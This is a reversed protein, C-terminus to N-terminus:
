YMGQVDYKDKGCCHKALEKYLWWLLISTGLTSIKLIIISYHVLKSHEDKESFFADNTCKYDFTVIICVDHFVSVRLLFYYKFIYTSRIIGYNHIYTHKSIAHCM